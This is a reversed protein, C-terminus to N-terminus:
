VIGMDGWDWAGGSYGNVWTHGIADGGVHVLWGAAFALARKHAWDDDDYDRAERVVHKAWDIARWFQGPTYPHIISQGIYMDPYIDACCSGARFELPCQVIAERLHDPVAIDCLPETTTTGDDNHIVRQISVSGDDAIDEYIICAQYIHANIAWADARVQFIVVTLLALLVASTEMRM